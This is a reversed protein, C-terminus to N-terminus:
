DRGGEKVKQYAGCRDTYPCTPNEEKDFWEHSICRGGNFDRSEKPSLSRQYMLGDFIGCLTEREQDKLTTMLRNFISAIFGGVNKRYETVDRMVDKIVIRDNNFFHGNEYSITGDENQICTGVNSHVLRTRLDRLTPFWAEGADKIQNRIELPVKSDIKNEIANTFLTSTKKKPLGQAKPFLSPLVRRTCDIASYLECYMTEVIAALEKARLMNSSGCKEFEVRDEDLSPIHRIALRMLHQYKMLHGGAGRLYARERDDLAYTSSHFHLFREVDSWIEPCYVRVNAMPKTNDQTM